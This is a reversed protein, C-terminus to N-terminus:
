SNITKLRIENLIEQQMRWRNLEHRIGKRIYRSKPFTELWYEELFDFVRKLLDSPQLVILNTTPTYNKAELWQLFAQLNSATLQESKFGQGMQELRYANSVQEFQNQYPITWILKKLLFAEWALNFGANGIIAKSSAMDQLFGQRTTKKFHINKVKKDKNYGYVFFTERPFQSLVDIIEKSEYWSIYCVIHEGLTTELDNLEQKWVLPFLTIDGATEITETFDLAFCHNYFPMMVNQVWRMGLKEHPKGPAITIAPHFVAHQRDICVVPKGTKKGVVSSHPEFDTFIADFNEKADLEILEKRVATYEPINALNVQLTKNLDVRHDKYFDILGPKFFTKPSLDFAYSPPERGALLVHVDHGDELLQTIFVRARNIHGQGNTNIGYLIKM